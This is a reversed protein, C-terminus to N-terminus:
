AKPGDKNELRVNGVSISMIGYLLAVKAPAGCSRNRSAGSSKDSSGSSLLSETWAPKWCRSHTGAAEARDSNGGANKDRRM